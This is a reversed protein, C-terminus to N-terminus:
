VRSVACLRLLVQFGTRKYAELIKNYDAGESFDYGRVIVSDAPMPTSQVLVADQM